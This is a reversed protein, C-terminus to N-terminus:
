SRPQTFCSQVFSVISSRDGAGTTIITEALAGLFWAVPVVAVAYDDVVRFYGQMALVYTDKLWDLLPKDNLGAVQAMFTLLAELGARTPAVAPAPGSSLKAKLWDTVIKKAYLDALVEEHLAPDAVPMRRLVLDVLHTHVYLRPLDFAVALARADQYIAWASPYRGAIAATQGLLGVCVDPLEDDNIGVSSIHRPVLTQLWSLNRASSLEVHITVRGRLLELEREIAPQQKLGAGQLGTLTLYPYASGIHAVCADRQLDPLGPFQFIRDLSPAPTTTNVHGDSDFHLYPATCILRDPGQTKEVCDDKTSGWSLKLNPQYEFPYNRVDPDNLRDTRIMHYDKADVRGLGSIADATLFQIGSAYMSAQKASDFVTFIVVNPEKCHRTLTDVMSGPAGGLREDSHGFKDFLDNLWNLVTPDSVSIRGGKHEISWLLALTVDAPTKGQSVPLSPATRASAIQAAMVGSETIMANILADNVPICRDV